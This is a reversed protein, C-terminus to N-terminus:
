YGLRNRGFSGVAALLVNFTQEANKRRELEAAAAERAFTVQARELEIRKAMAIVADGAQKPNDPYGLEADCASKALELAQFETGTYIVVDSLKPEASKKQSPNM